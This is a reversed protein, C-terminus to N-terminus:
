PTQGQQSHSFSGERRAEALRRRVSCVSKGTIEGVLDFGAKALVQRGGQHGQGRLPRDLCFGPRGWESHPVVSGGDICTGTLLKERYERKHAARKTLSWKMDCHYIANSGEYVLSGAGDPAVHLTMDFLDNWGLTEGKGLWDGAFADKPQATAFSPTLLM